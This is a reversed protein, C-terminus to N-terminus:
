ELGLSAVIKGRLDYYREDVFMGGTADLTYTLPIYDSVTGGTNKYVAEMTDGEGLYLMTYCQSAPNLLNALAIDRGTKKVYRDNGRCRAVGVECNVSITGDKRIILLPNYAITYGGYANDIQNDNTRKTSMQNTHTSRVHIFRVGYQDDSKLAFITTM